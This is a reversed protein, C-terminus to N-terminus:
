KQPADTLSWNITATYAGIYNGAPVMLTADTYPMSWTGMGQGVDARVSSQSAANLTLENVLTGPAQGTGTSTATKTRLKLVAGNLLHGGESDSLKFPSGLSVRLDWGEGTGRADSVQAAIASGDSATGSSTLTTAVSSIESKGFNFNPAAAISLGSAGGTLNVTADTTGNLVPDSAAFVKSATIGFMISISFIALIYKIM